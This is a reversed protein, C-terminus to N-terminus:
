SRELLQVCPSIGPHRTSVRERASLLQQVLLKESCQILAIRKSTQISSDQRHSGLERARGQCPHLNMVIVLWPGGYLDEQPKWQMEKEPQSPHHHARQEM